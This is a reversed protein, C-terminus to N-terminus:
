SPHFIQKDLKKAETLFFIKVKDMDIKKVMIPMDKLTEVQLLNDGLQLVDVKMEFKAFSKNLLESFTWNKKKQLIFYLDIFDRLRPRFAITHAKNVAIDYMSEVLIGEFQKLKEVPEFPYQGFDIKHKLNRNKDLLFFTYLGFGHQFEVASIDNKRTILNIFKKLEDLDLEEQTFFDLDESLRHQLYFEALATGGSLYYKDHLFSKGFIHLTQKQFSNLITQVM